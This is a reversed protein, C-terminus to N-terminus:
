RCISYQPSLAQNLNNTNSWHYVRAHIIYIVNNLYLNHPNTNTYRIYFRIPGAALAAKEVAFTLNWLPKTCGREVFTVHREVHGKKLVRPASGSFAM